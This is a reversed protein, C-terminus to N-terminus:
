ALGGPFEFDAVCNNGSGTGLLPGIWSLKQIGDASTIELGGGAQLTQDDTALILTQPGQVQVYFVTWQKFNAISQISAKGSSDTQQFTKIM